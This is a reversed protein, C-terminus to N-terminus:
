TAATRSAPPLSSLIMRNCTIGIHRDDTITLIVNSIAPIMRVAAPRPNMPSPACGGSGSHPALEDEVLPPDRGNRAGRDEDHAEAEVEEAVRQAVQEIRM